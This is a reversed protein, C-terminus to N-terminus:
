EQEAVVEWTRVVNKTFRTLEVKRPLFTLAEGQPDQGNNPFTQQNKGMFVADFVGETKLKEFNELAAEETRWYKAQDALMVVSCGGNAKKGKFYYHDVIIVYIDMRKGDVHPCAEASVAVDPFATNWNRMIETSMRGEEYKSM